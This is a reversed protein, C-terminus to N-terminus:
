PQRERDCLQRLSRRVDLYARASAAADGERSLSGAREAVAKRRGSSPSDRRAKRSRGRASPAAVQGRAQEVVKVAVARLGKDQPARYVLAGTLTSLAQETERKALLARVRNRSEAM